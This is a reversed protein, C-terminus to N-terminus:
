AKRAPSFAQQEHPADVERTFLHDTNSSLTSKNRAARHADAVRGRPSQEFGIRADGDVPAIDLTDALSDALQIMRLPRNWDAAIHAIRSLTLPQNLLRHSAQASKVVKNAIGTDAVEGIGFVKCLFV